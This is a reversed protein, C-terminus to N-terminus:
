CMKVRSTRRTESVKRKIIDNTVDDHPSSLFNLKEELTKLSPLQVM